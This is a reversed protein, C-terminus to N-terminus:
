VKQLIATAITSATSMRSRKEHSAWNKEIGYLACAGDAVFSRLDHEMDLYFVGASKDHLISFISRSPLISPDTNCFNYNATPNLFVPCFIETGKQLLRKVNRYSTTLGFNHCSVRFDDRCRESKVSLTKMEDEKNLFV